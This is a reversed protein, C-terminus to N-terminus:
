NVTYGADHIAQKITALDVKKANYVVQVTKNPVSVESTIVGNVLKLAGEIISKCSPCTMGNVMLQVTKSDQQTDNTNNDQQLTDSKSDGCNCTIIPFLTILSILFLHLLSKM